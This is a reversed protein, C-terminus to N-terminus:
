FKGSPVAVLSRLEAAMTDRVRDALQPVDDRTLGTTSVPPM